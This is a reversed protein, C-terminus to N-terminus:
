LSLRPARTQVRAYVFVRFIVLRRQELTQDAPVAGEPPSAAGAATATAAAAAAAGAAERGEGEMDHASAAGAAAPKPRKREDVDGGGGAGAKPPMNPRRRKAQHKQARLFSFSFSSPHRSFFLRSLAAANVHRKHQKKQARASAREIEATHRSHTPKNPLTLSHPARLDHPFNELRRSLAFSLLSRRRLPFSFPLAGLAVGPPRTASRLTSAAPGAEPCFADDGTTSTRARPPRLGTATAFYTIPTPRTHTFLPPPARLLPPAAGLVLLNRARAGDDGPVGTFLSRRRAKNREEECLAKASAYM